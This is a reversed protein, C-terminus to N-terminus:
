SASSPYSRSQAACGPSASRNRQQGKGEPLLFQVPSRELERKLVDKLAIRKRKAKM